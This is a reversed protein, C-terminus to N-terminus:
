WTVGMGAGVFADEYGVESPARDAASVGSPSQKLTIIEYFGFLQGLLRVDTNGPKGLSWM